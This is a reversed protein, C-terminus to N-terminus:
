SVVVWRFGAHDYTALRELSGQPELGELNECHVRKAGDARAPAVSGLQCDTACGIIENFMSSKHRSPVFNQHVGFASCTSMMAPISAVLM